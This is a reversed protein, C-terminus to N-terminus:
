EEISAGLLRCYLEDSDSHETDEDSDTANDSDDSDMIESEFSSSDSDSSDSTCSSCVEYESDSEIASSVEVNEKNADLTLKELNSCIATETSSQSKSNELNPKQERTNGSNSSNLLPDQSMWAVRALTEIDVLNLGIDGKTLLVKELCAALPVLHKSRCSKTQMWVIYDVIFLDNLIYRPENQNFMEHIELLCKIIYKRGLLIIKRVDELITVSLEFHRYLPYTLSRRICTIAVESISTFTELWCLTASIKNITWSSEVTNEGETTRKNYAYAFLIDILCHNFCFDYSYLIYEKSPLKRLRDKEETTFQIKDESINNQAEEYLVVWEPNYNILRQIEEDEFLDALYHEDNFCQTEKQLREESRTKPTKSQPDVVDFIEHVEEKLEFVSFTYSNAFGCQQGFINLSGFKNDSPIQEINWDIEEENEQVDDTSELVEIRPVGVTKGKKSKLLNNILDLDKFVEGKQAKAAHITFVRKDVDYKFVPKECSVVKGPLNLRLYYPKCYFMFNYDEYDIEVESLKAYPVQISIILFEENQTLDFPPTLM